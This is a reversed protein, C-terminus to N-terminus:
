IEAANQIFKINFKYKRLQFEWIQIISKFWFYKVLNLNANADELVKGFNKMKLIKPSQKQFIM